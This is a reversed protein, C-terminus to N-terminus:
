RATIKKQLVNRFCFFLRRKRCGVDLSWAQVIIVHARTGVATMFNEVIIGHRFRILVHIELLFRLTGFLMM